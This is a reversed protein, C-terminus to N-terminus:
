RAKAPRRQFAGVTLAVAAMGGLALTGDLAFDANAAMWGAAALVGAAALAALAAGRILRRAADARFREAEARRMVELTFHMDKAPAALAALARLLRDESTM